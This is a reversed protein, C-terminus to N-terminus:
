REKKEQIAYLRNGAIAYLVSNAFIPSGYISGDMEIKRPEKKEKGHTFIWIDGDETGLYVKGGVWLPSGCVSTKLDHRWYMLGTRADFCHMYGDLEPAYVLDDHIVCTSLTRGFGFDRELKNAMAPSLPSRPTHWVVGSKPNVKAKGTQVELELSLDGERTPDICYLCGEGAGNEPDKGSAIYIRNAAFVPTAMIHNRIHFGLRGNNKFEKPNVDCKWLLKGTTAEFSRVWGDGQGIIVQGRGHIEVVLPSSRQIHIINKGPSNDKWIMKGTNKNFCILSPADPAPVADPFEGSSNGTVAYILDKYSAAFSPATGMAMTGAVPKVGFEKRMDVKWVEHLEQDGRRLASSDLCLAEWRNTILWLRDGEVLPCSGMGQHPWDEWLSGGKLRPAVYQGLFKGDSERFCMLVSADEKRQPDRPRTNNTGVWVLSNAVVPTGRSQGGLTASWKINRAQKTVAGTKDDRIEIQWDTPAGKEPSVMNRTRDRGWMPWDEARLLPDGVLVGIMFLLSLSLRRLM